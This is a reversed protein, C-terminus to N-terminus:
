LWFDGGLARSPAVLFLFDEPRRVLENVIQLISFFPAALSYGAASVCAMRRQVCEDLRFIAWIGFSQQSVFRNRHFGFEEAWKWRNVPTACLVIM